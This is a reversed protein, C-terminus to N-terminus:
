QMQEIGAIVWGQSGDVPKVLHWVEDFSEVPGNKEERITGFYRVSAIYRKDETTVDLLDANLNVVDTQQDKGSRDSFQMKIEAYMEPTTFERIDDLNGADNAAQLRIFNVKAQRVFGEVDFGAPISGGRRPEPEVERAALGGGIVPAAGYAPQSPQASEFRMPEAAPAPSAGAYAMPESKKRMMGMVLRIVFFIAVGMLLMSLIGGFGGGGGFAGGLLAGIGVGAALGALPGLWRNGAPQPAAAPQAAPAPAAAPTAPKPAPATQKQTIDPSRKMGTTGGGGLRKADADAVLLTMGVLLASFVTLFRKM